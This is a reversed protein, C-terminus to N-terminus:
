MCKRKEANQSGQVRKSGDSFLGSQLKLSLVGVSKLCWRESFPSLQRVGGGELDLSEAQRRARVTDPAPLMALVSLVATGEQLYSSERRCLRGDRM